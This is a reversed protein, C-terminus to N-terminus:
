EDIDVVEVKEESVSETPISAEKNEKSQEIKAIAKRVRWEVLPGLIACVVTITAEGALKKKFSKEM